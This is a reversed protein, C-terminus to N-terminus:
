SSRPRPPRAPGCCPRVPRGGRASRVGAALDLEVDVYGSAVVLADVAASSLPARGLNTHVVVGTANLVPSLRSTRRGALAAVLAPGVEDPAIEGRRAEAQVAAVEGRVVAESLRSRAAAVEPLALLDDTRPIRSRPDAM